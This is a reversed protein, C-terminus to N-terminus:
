RAAVAADPKATVPAGAQELPAVFNYRHLALAGHQGQRSDFRYETVACNAVDGELDIKLIQEETLHELLYRMCLVVVQHAVILVRCGDFHLSMTDLASRLRLIVDCWSEGGPPRPYFKGLMRRFEAQQPHSREIGARTLRDLIGFEKERLREDIVLEPSDESIGGVSGILEATQKARRYPSILVVNPREYAAMASFWRGLAISQEEGLRSL